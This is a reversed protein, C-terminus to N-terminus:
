PNPVGQLCITTWHDLRCLLQPQFRRLLLGLMSFAVLYIFKSESKQLLEAM